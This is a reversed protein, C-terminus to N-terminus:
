DTSAAFSQSLELSFAASMEMEMDFDPMSMVYDVGGSGEATTEFSEFRGEELNWTCEGTVKLELFIDVSGDVGMEGAEEGALASPGLDLSEDIECVFEIVGVTVGDQDASGTYTCTAETDNLFSMMAEKVEDPMEAFLEGSEDELIKEIDPGPILIGFVPIGTVVWEDDTDVEGDPLIAQLDLDVAMMEMAEEDGEEEGVFSRSYAGDEDDWLFHVTKGVLDEAVTEDADGTTSEYWATLEDYTRHFSVPKDDVVEVVKDTVGMTYGFTVALDDPLGMMSPDTEEGNMAMSLDDLTLEGKVEFTKASSTDTKPRYGVEDGPLTASLLLIAPFAICALFRTRIM